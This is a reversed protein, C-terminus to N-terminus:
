LEYISSFLLYYFIVHGSVDSPLHPIVHHELMGSIATHYEAHKITRLQAMTKRLRTMDIGSGEGLKTRVKHPM